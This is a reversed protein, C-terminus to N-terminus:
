RQQGTKKKKKSPPFFFFSLLGFIRPINILMSSSKPTPLIFRQRVADLKAIAETELSNIKQEIDSKQTNLQEMVQESHTVRKRQEKRMAKLGKSFDNLGLLLRDCVALEEEWEIERTSKQSSASASQAKYWNSIHALYSTTAGSEEEKARIMHHRIDDMKTSLHASQDCIKAKIVACQLETTQLATRASDHQFKHEQWVQNIRTHVRRLQSMSLRYHDQYKELDKEIGDIEHLKTHLPQYDEDLDYLQTQLEIVKMKLLDLDRHVDGCSKFDVESVNDLGNDSIKQFLAKIRALT